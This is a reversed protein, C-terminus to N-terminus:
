SPDQNKHQWLRLIPEHTPMLIGKTIGERMVSVDVWQLEVIDDDAKPSGSFHKAEFILSKIKDVENRYRWDDIKLSGIYVPDTIEIHAEEAVERRADQEYTESRPDAFGGIFRLKIENEKRALLMKDREENLIIIDVTAYNTPFRSHAAWTVGMRFDPSAKTSGRAVERRIETGSYREYVEPELETTDFKGAYRAIFSDRGGYLMPKQSPTILDVIISDLKKSWIDDGNMDKIYVVSVEPYYSLIMQKRAEFDLPNEQTVMLPSVGLIIITKDHKNCVMNILEVHAKHLEPVQFRGVIVGVSHDQKPMTM